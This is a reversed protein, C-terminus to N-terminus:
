DPKRESDARTVKGYYERFSSFLKQGKLSPIVSMPRTDRFIEVLGMSQLMDCFHRAYKQDAGYKMLTTSTPNKAVCLGLFWIFSTIQIENDMCFRKIHILNSVLNSFEIMRPKIPMNIERVTEKVKSIRKVKVITKPPTGLAKECAKYGYRWYTRRDLIRRGEMKKIKAKLEAIVEFSLKKKQM